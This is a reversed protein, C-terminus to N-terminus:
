GEVVEDPLENSSTATRPFHTSLSKGVGEIGEVIARSFKEKQFLERM